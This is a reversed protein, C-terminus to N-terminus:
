CSSITLPPLSRGNRDVWVYSYVGGMSITQRMPVQSCANTRTGQHLQEIQAPSLQSADIDVRANYTLMPGTAVVSTLSTLADVRLPLRPTMVRVVQRNACAIMELRQAQTFDSIPRSADGPRICDQGLREVDAAQINAKEMFERAKPDLGSMPDRPEKKCGALALAAVACTMGPGLRM